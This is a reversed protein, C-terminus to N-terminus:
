RTEDDEILSQVGGEGGPFTRSIIAPLGAAELRQFSATAVELSPLLAFFSPGAGALHFDLGCLTRSRDMLEAVHPVSRRVIAEFTNSIPVEWLPRGQRLADAALLAAAGDTFDSPQLLSYMTATKEPLHVVPTAIVVWTPSPSPLPSLHDGRGSALAAGGHLCFPVDSGLQAALRHLEQSTLGTQWLRDLALLTTAADSSAGGLGAAVPIRKRCLIRAGQSTGTEQQLLRAARLILNRDDRPLEAAIATRSDEVELVLSDAPSFALEDALELQVMVTMIDHYGDPRRGLVELGLNLKARALARVMM